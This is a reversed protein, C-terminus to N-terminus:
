MTLSTWSLGADLGSVRFEPGEQTPRLEVLADFADALMAVTQENCTATDITSVGLYGGRDVRDMITRLFKYVAGRDMRELMATASLHGVRLGDTSMTVYQEIQRGFASGISALDTPSDVAAVRDDDTGFGTADIIRLREDDTGGASEYAAV